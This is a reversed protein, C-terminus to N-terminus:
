RAGTRAPWAPGQNEKTVPGLGKYTIKQLRKGEYTETTYINGKVMLPTGELKYEPRPGLNDTKLRWAIELTNFNSANIQDLPSYRSGKVDASYNPWEGNKVSPLGSQTAQGNLGTAMAVLLMAVATFALLSRVTTRSM